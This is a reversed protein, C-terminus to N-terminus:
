APALTNVSNIFNGVEPGGYQKSLVEQCNLLSSREWGWHEQRDSRPPSPTSHNWSPRPKAWPESWEEQSDYHLSLVLILSYGRKCWESAPSVRQSLFCPGQQIGTVPTMLMNSFAFTLSCSAPRWALQLVWWPWGCMQYSVWCWTGDNISTQNEPRPVSYPSYGYRSILRKLLLLRGAGIWCEMRSVCTELIVAPPSQLWLILLHKSRPLFPIVFRSLMNFLLSM